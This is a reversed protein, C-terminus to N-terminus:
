PADGHHNVFQLIRLGDIQREHVGEFAKPNESMEKLVDGYTGEAYEEGNAIVIGWLRGDESAQKIESWSLPTEDYSPRPPRRANVNGFVRLPAIADTLVIKDEPIEQGIAIAASRIQTATEDSPSMFLSSSRGIQLLALLLIGVVFVGYTIRTRSLLHRSGWCGAIGLFFLLIWYVAVFHRSNIIEGWRYVSRAVVITLTYFGLFVLLLLQEHHDRLVTLVKRWTVKYVFLVILTVVGSAAVVYKNVVLDSFRGLATLDAGIVWFASKANWLFSLESPPMSYPNPSGFTSINWLVLWGCGLVWGILWVSLAAAGEKLRFRPIQLLLYTVTAAFLSVAVNRVCWSLGGSLGALLLWSTSVRDGNTGRALCMLSVFTLLLHPGESLCMTGTNLLARMSM